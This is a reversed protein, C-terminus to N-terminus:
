VRTWMQQTRSRSVQRAMQCGRYMAAQREIERQVALGNIQQRGALQRGAAQRKIEKEVVPRRDAAQEDAARSGRWRGSNTWRGGGAQKTAQVMTKLGRHLGLRDLWLSTHFRRLDIRRDQPWLRRQQLVNLIRRRGGPAASQELRRATAAHRVEYLADAGGDLV